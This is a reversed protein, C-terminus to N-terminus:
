SFKEAIIEIVTPAALALAERLAETLAHPTEVRKAAAGCAKALEVFNPNMGVVGTPPIGAGIM